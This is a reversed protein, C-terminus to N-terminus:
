KSWTTGSPFSVTAEHRFGLAASIILTLLVALAFFYIGIDTQVWLKGSIIGQETTTARLLQLIGELQDQDELIGKCADPPLPLIGTGGSM